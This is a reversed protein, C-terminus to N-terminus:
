CCIHIYFEHTYLCSFLGRLGVRGDDKIPGRNERNKRSCFLSVEMNPRMSLLRWSLYWILLYDRVGQHTPTTDGLEKASVANQTEMECSKDLVVHSAVIESIVVDYTQRILVIHKSRDYPVALGYRADAANHFYIFAEPRNRETLFSSQFQLLCYIYNNPSTWTRLILSRTSPPQHITSPKSWTALSSTSPLRLISYSHLSPGPLSAPTSLSEM